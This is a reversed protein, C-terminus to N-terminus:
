VNGKTGTDIAITFGTSSIHLRSTKTDASPFDWTSLRFPTSLFTSQFFQSQQPPPLPPPNVDLM